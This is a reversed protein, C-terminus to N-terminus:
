EYTDNGRINIKASPFERRLSPTLARSKKERMCRYSTAFPERVLAGSCFIDSETKSATLAGSSVQRMGDNEPLDMFARIAVELNDMHETLENVRDNLKTRDGRTKHLEKMAKMVSFGEPLIINGEEDFTFEIM